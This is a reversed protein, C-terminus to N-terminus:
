SHGTRGRDAGYAEVAKDAESTEEADFSHLVTRLSVAEQFITAGGLGRFWDGCCGLSSPPSFFLRARVRDNGFRSMASMSVLWGLKEVGALDGSREEGRFRM